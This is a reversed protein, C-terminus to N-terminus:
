RGSALVCRARQMLFYVRRWSHVLQKPWMKGDKAIELPHAGTGKKPHLLHRLVTLRMASGAGAYSLALFEARYLGLAKQEEQVILTELSRAARKQRQSPILDDADVDANAGLGYQVLRSITAESLPIHDILTITFPTVTNEIEDDSDLTLDVAEELKVSSTGKRPLSWESM